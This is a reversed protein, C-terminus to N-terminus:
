PRVRAGDKLTAAPYLVVRDGNSLGELVVRHRDDGIGTRVPTLRARGGQVRYVAWGEGQRVLADAPVRLADTVESLTVRVDVRFGHGLPPSAAPDTLRLIVSVRQEEVGLASIRTRAYPEVRLVSAPIPPDGGWGELVARAGPRVQTADQSLFDAVVEKSTAYTIDSAYADRREEPSQPATVFGARIGCFRYLPDLWRADREVLYDNVTIVHCPRGNWAMLVAAIGATLTKGEGTAMEALCGRHLALAGMLQEPFALLGLQRHAAERVLALAPLIAPGADRGGRRIIERQEQLRMRLRHDGEDKIGRWLTEAEAADSRLRQLAGTRRRYAGIWRNAWADVGKPLPDPDRRDTRRYFETPTTVGPIPNAAVAEPLPDM